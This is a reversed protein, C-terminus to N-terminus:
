DYCFFRHMWSFYSKLMRYFRVCLVIFILRIGMKWKYKKPNIGCNSFVEHKNIIMERGYNNLNSNSLKEIELVTYYKVYEKMIYRLLINRRDAISLRLFFNCLATDDWKRNSSDAGEWQRYGYLSNDIYYSKYKYSIRVMFVYDDIANLGNINDYNCNFGIRLYVERRMVNGLFHKKMWELLYVEDYPHLIGNWKSEMSFAESLEEACKFCIGGCAISDIKNIRRDHLVSEIVEVFSPHLVDDDHMITVWETQSLVIGADYLSYQNNKIVEDENQQYYLIREDNLLRVYREEECKERIGGNDLILLQFGTKTSQYLVSKIAEKLLKFRNYTILVITLNADGNRYKGWKLKVNRIAGEEDISKYQFFDYKKIKSLSVENM